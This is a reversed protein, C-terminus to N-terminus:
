NYGKYKVTHSTGTATVVTNHVGSSPHSLCWFCTLTIKCYFLIYVAYKQMDKSM